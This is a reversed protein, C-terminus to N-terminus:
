INFMQIIEKWIIWTCQLPLPPPTLDNIDRDGRPKIVLTRLMILMQCLISQSDGRIRCSSVNEYAAHCGTLGDFRSHRVLPILFRLLSETFWSRTM